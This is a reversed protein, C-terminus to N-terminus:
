FVPKTQMYLFIIWPSCHFNWPFSFPFKCVGYCLKIKTTNRYNAHVSMHVYVLLIFPVEGSLPLNLSLVRGPKWSCILNFDFYIWNMWLICECNWTVVICSELFHHLLCYPVSFLWLYIFYVFLNYCYRCKRNQWGGTCLTSGSPIVCNDNLHHRWHHHHPCDIDIVMM